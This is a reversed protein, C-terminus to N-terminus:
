VRKLATGVSDKFRLRQKPVFTRLKTARPRSHSRALTKRTNQMGSIEGLRRNGRRKELLLNEDLFVSSPWDGAQRCRARVYPILLFKRIEGGLAITETRNKWLSNGTRLDKKGPFKRFIKEGRVM